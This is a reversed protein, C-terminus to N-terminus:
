LLVQLRANPASLRPTLPSPPHVWWGPLALMGASDLMGYFLESEM